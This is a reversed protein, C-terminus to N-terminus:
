RNLPAILGVGGTGSLSLSDGHLLNGLVGCVIYLIRHVPRTKAAFEVFHSGPLQIAVICEFHFCSFTHWAGCRQSGKSLGHSFRRVSHAGQQANSYFRPSGDLTLAGCLITSKRGINKRSSKKNSRHHLRIGCWTSKLATSVKQLNGVHLLPLSKLQWRREMPSLTHSM